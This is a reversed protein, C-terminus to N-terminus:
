YIQQVSDFGVQAGSDLSLLLDGGNLAVADVRSRLYTQASVTADAGTVSAYFQYTGPGAVSGDDSLGDWTFSNMGASMDGLDMTRVVAGTADLVELRVPGSSPVNLSGTVGGADVYAASSAVLVDHGVLGSAQLSQSSLMQSSLSSFQDNLNELGAVQSFQAIQNFFEGNELPKMPDQNKLQATMLKLFDDQGLAKSTGATSTTTSLSSLSDLSNITSM